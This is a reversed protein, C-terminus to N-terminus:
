GHYVFWPEESTPMPREDGDVAIVRIFELALDVLVGADEKPAGREVLADLVEARTREGLHVASAASTAEFMMGPLSRLLEEPLGAERGVRVADEVTRRQLYHLVLGKCMGEMTSGGRMKM